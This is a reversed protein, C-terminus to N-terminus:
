RVVTVSKTTSFSEGRMRVIYLGSSLDSAQLSVTRTQSSPVSGQHLVQVRQGLTNYLELTVDQSEKVAFKITAQESIPNPYAKLEYQSDLGVKVTTEKSFSSGGDVDVQKLRFTHQGADLDEVRYSYSQPEEATGAGEVFAGDINQFSGDVKQQVQFGANNQESATTWELKATNDAVSGTFSTFEVPITANPVIRLQFRTSAGNKNVPHKVVEPTPLGPVGQASGSLSKRNTGNTSGSCTSEPTSSELTFTYEDAARLDIQEGTKTDRLVLGWSDPINRLNAASLTAEGVYPATGDCGRLKPEMYVSTEEALDFPLNNISLATGDDLVSYLELFSGNGLGGGPKELQLGDHSDRGLEGDSRFTLRKGTELSGDVNLALRMLRDDESGQSKFFPDDEDEFPTDDPGAVQPETQQVTEIDGISLSANSNQAEVFFAQFPAILGEGVFATSATLDEVGNYSKYGNTPDYIYVTGELNSKTLDDWDINNMYPNGLLNWGDETNSDGDDGFQLAFTHGTNDSTFDLSSSVSVTKPFDEPSGDFNDDAFPYLIFGEGPDTTNSMDSVPAWRQDRAGSLSTNYTFLNTNAESADPVDSGTPGQIWLNNVNGQRLFSNYTIGAPSALFYWDPGDSLQRDIILQDSIQGDFSGSSTSYKIGASSRLLLNGRGLVKGKKLDLLDLVRIEASGSKVQVGASEDLPRDNNIELTAISFASTATIEQVADGNFVLRKQSPDESTFELTGNDNEFLAGSVKLARATKLTTSPGIEINEAVIANESSSIEVETGADRLLFQGLTIESDGTINQISNGDATEDGTGNFRITGGQPDLNGTEAITLDNRLSLEGQPVSLKGDAINLLGNIKFDGGLQADVGNTIRVEAFVEGKVTTTGSGRNFDVRDSYFNPGNVTFKEGNFVVRPAPVSSTGFTSGSDDGNVNFNGSIETENNPQVEAGNTLKLNSFANDSTFAGTIDLSGPLGTGDLVVNGDDSVRFEGDVGPDPQARTIEGNITLKGSGVDLQAGSNINIVEFTMEGSSLSSLEDNQGGNDSLDIRPATVSGSNVNFEGSSNIKETGNVTFVGTGLSIEGTNEVEENGTVDVTFNAGSLSITGSNSVEGDVTVSEGPAGSFQGSNLLDGGVTLSGSSGSIPDSLDFGNNTGSANNDVDGTVELGNGLFLVTGSGGASAQITVSALAGQGSETLDISISVRDDAQIVADDGANPYERM